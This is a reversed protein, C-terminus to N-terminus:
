IISQSQAGIIKITARWRVDLNTTNNVRLTISDAGLAVVDATLTNWPAVFPSFSLMIPTGFVLPASAGERTIMLRAYGIARQGGSPDYAEVFAEIQVNRDEHIITTALDGGAATVLLEMVESTFTVVTGGNMKLPFDGFGDTPFVEPPTPGFKQPNSM